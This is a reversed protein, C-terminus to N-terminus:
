TLELFEEATQFKFDESVHFTITRKRSELPRESLEQEIPVIRAVPKKARGYVVTVSEGQQVSDIVESFQAKLEGIPM